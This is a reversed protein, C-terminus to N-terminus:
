VVSKRDEAFQLGLRLGVGACYMRVRHCCSDTAGEIRGRCDWVLAYSVVKRAGGLSDCELVVSEADCRRVCSPRAGYQHLADSVEHQDLRGALRGRYDCGECWDSLEFSRAHGARAGAFRAASEAEVFVM